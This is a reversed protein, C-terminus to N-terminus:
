PWQEARRQRPSLIWFPFPAIKSTKKSVSLASYLMANLVWVFFRSFRDVRSKPHNNPKARPVTNRSPSSRRLPAAIKVSFMHGILGVGRIITFHIPGHLLVCCPSISPQLRQVLRNIAAFHPHSGTKHIVDHKKRCHAM